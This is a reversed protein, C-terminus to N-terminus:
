SAPANQLQAAQFHAMLLERARAEPLPTQTHTAM